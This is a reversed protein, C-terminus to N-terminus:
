VSYNGQAPEGCYVCAIERAACELCRPIHGARMLEAILPELEGTLSAVRLARRLDSM